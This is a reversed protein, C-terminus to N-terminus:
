AVYRQQQTFPLTVVFKCFQGTRSSITLKGGAQHIRQKIIDMGMGRGADVSVNKATSFGPSFILSVLKNKSLGALKHESYKGSAIAKQRITECDIGAGDDEFTLEINSGVRVLRCDVRAYEDKQADRREDANEIGHYVANRMFQVSIDNILDDTADDTQIEEFGVCAFHAQKNNRECLSDFLQHLKHQQLPMKLTSAEEKSAFSTLKDNLHMISQSYDILEDLKVTLSLFDNGDLDPKNMLYSLENEFHHAMTAFMTLDLASSEGKFNHIERFIEQTKNLLSVKTKAPNKLADNIQSFTKFSRQLFETLLDKNTHIISTLMELQEEGEAKVQELKNTLLVKETMDKVSVLIHRIGSKDDVRAFDFSLYKEEFHGSEQGINVKIETLPNLDQILDVHVRPNFLSDVYEKAIELDKNSVLNELLESFSKGAINEDGLMVILEKSFQTGILQQNNLLFLGENVTDMIEKTEGRAQDIVADSESLQRMFHFMIIFFNIIALSIGVIQIIRLRTAKQSAISELEFTLANLENILPQSNLQGYTIAQSLAGVDIYEDIQEDLLTQLLVAYPKWLEKAQNIAQLGKVSTVADLKVESKDVTEVIHGEKFAILTQTFLQKTERLEKSAKMMEDELLYLNAHQMTYLNTLMRQSLMSQRAALNVTKADDAIQFSIYFNLMLVSADLLLFLAISVIIGKYKAFNLANMKKDGLM